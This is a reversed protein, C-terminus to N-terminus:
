PFALHLLNEGVMFLTLLLAFLPYIVILFAIISPKANFDDFGEKLAQWLDKVGIERIEIESLRVQVDRFSKEQAMM